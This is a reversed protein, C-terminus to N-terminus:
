TNKLCNPAALVAFPVVNLTPNACFTWRWAEGVVIGKGDCVVIEVVLGVGLGEDLEVVVLLLPARAVEDINPNAITEIAKTIIRRHHM